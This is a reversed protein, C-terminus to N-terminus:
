FGDPIMPIFVARGKPSCTNGAHFRATNFTPLLRNAASSPPKDSRKALPSASKTAWARACPLSTTITDDPATAAEMGALAPPLAEAAERLRGQALWVLALDRRSEATRADGEPYIRSRIELARAEAEEAKAYSGANFHVGSLDHLLDALPGPEEAARAERLALAREFLRLADDVAESSGVGYLAEAIKQLGAADPVGEAIRLAGALDGAEIRALADAEEGAVAPTSLLLLLLLLRRTLVRV